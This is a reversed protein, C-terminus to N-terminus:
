LPEKHYSLIHDAFVRARSCFDTHQAYSITNKKLIDIKQLTDLLVKNLAEQSFPDTLVSNGSDKVYNAFGCIDTTIVPVGDAIAEILVTGTAENRAPHLLLDSALLYNHIGDVPGTFTAQTSLGNDQLQKMLVDQPLKGVFLLHVKQRIDDPLAATADIARDTGKNYISNSVMIISIADQPINCEDRVQKRISCAIEDTPRMCKSDMGPPLLFFRDQNTGYESIYDTIQSQVLCAVRTHSKSDFVQKELNLYTRYRPFFRCVFPSHLKKWYTKMCVDAAFYFDAGPIRSMAVSIDYAPRTKDSLRQSFLDSFHKMRAHNPLFKPIKVIETTINPHPIEGEWHATFVIVKAGREALELFLRLADKQLGGYPHYQYIATLIVTM